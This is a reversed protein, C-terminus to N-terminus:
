RKEEQFAYRLSPNTRERLDKELSEWGNLNWYRFEERGLGAQFMCLFIARYAPNSARAIDRINEATLTGEVPPFDGRIIFNPDKPLGARNHAFFSRMANYRGQKTSKRLGKLSNIYEQIVDLLLYIEDKNSKRVYSVLEDPSLDAFEGGNEGLWNYVLTFRGLYSEYSGEAVRNLWRVVSPYDAIKMDLNANM